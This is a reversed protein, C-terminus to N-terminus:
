LKRQLQLQKNSPTNENKGVVNERERGRVSASTNGCHKSDARDFADTARLWGRAMAVGLEVVGSEDRALRTSMANGQVM